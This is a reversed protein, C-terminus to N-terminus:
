QSIIWTIIEARQDATSKEFWYEMMPLIKGEAILPETISKRNKFAWDSFQEKETASAKAFLSQTMKISDSVKAVEVTKVVPAAIVANAAIANAAIANSAIANAVVANAKYGEFLSNIYEGPVRFTLKKGGSNPKLEFTFDSEISKLLEENTVNFTFYQKAICNATCMSTSVKYAKIKAAKNNVTVYEYPNYADFYGIKMQVQSSPAQLGEKAVNATIFLSSEVVGHDFHTINEPQIAQGIVEFYTPKNLVEEIANNLNDDYSPTACASLLATISVVILKKFM